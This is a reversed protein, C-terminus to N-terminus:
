QELVYGNKKTDFAAPKEASMFTGTTYYGSKIKTSYIIVADPPEKSVSPLAPNSIFAYVYINQGQM